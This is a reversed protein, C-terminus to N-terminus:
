LICAMDSTCFPNVLNVSHRRCPCGCSPIVLRARLGDARRTTQLELNHSAGQDPGPNLSAVALSRAMLRFTLPLIMRAAQTGAM